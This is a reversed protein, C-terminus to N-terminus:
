LSVTFSFYPLIPVLSIGKYSQTNEFPNYDLRISHLNRRNYANYIGGDFSWSGWSTKKHYKAALDLRHYSPLQYSNKKDFNIFDLDTQGDQRIYPWRSRPLSVKGGTNFNWTASFSWNGGPQFIYVAKLNHRFDFRFPFREGNNIEPFIRNSEALTYSLWGQHKGKGKKLQTEVGKATGSGLAIKEEWKTADILDQNSLSTRVDLFSILNSMQKYYASTSLLWEEHVQWDAGLEFLKARQPAVKRSSPVWLDNPLGANSRTILHLNQSTRSFAAHFKWRKSAQWNISLRPDILLYNKDTLYLASGYIGANLVLEPSIFWEDELHINIDTLRRKNTLAITDAFDDLSLLNSNDTNLIGPVFQYNYLAIGGRLYHHQNPIYDLDLRSGITKINSLYIDRSGNDFIEEGENYFKNVITEDTTFNFQSFILTLNSFLKSGFQHNWRGVALTNGWNVIQREEFQESQNGQRNLQSRENKYNDAGRYFSFYVRDRESFSYNLKGVVDGFSYNFLGDVDNKARQNRSITKIIPDLHSRRASLLFAGKERVIPGEIAFKSAILGTSAQAHFTKNNGERTRVDVVSSIRGGYHAPFQGRYYRVNRVIQSDFISYLGLMHYPNYIPVGDFLILNQDANGGRIHLGGFGDTGSQAGPLQQILRLVDVEGGLSPLQDLDNNLSFAEYKGTSPSNAIALSDTVVIEQLTLSPQLQVLTQQKAKNSAVEYDASEYGLYSFRLAMGRQARLSLSFFGYENTITGSGNMPSYVYAGILRMGSTKDEVYGSITIEQIRRPSIILYDDEFIYELQPTTLLLADLIKKISKHRFAFSFTEDSFHNDSFAIDLESVQSLQRLADPITQNKVRFNINKELAQQAHLPTFALM